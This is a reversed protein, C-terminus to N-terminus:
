DLLINVMQPLVQQIIDMIEASIEYVAYSVISVISDEIITVVGAVIGTDSFLRTGLNTMVEGNNFATLVAGLLDFVFDVLKGLETIAVM